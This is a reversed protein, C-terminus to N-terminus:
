NWTFIGVRTSSGSYIRISSSYRLHPTFGAGDSGVHRQIHGDPRRAVGIDVFDTTVAIAAIRWRCCLPGDLVTGISSEIGM